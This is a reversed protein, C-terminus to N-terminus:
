DKDLAKIEVELDVRVKLGELGALIEKLKM